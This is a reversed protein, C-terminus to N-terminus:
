FFPFSFLFSFFPFPPPPTHLFPLACFTGTSSKFPKCNDAIGGSPEFKEELACVIESIEGGREGREKNLDYITKVM